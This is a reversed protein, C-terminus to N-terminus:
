SAQEALHSQSNGAQVLAVLDALLNNGLREWSYTTTGMRAAAEAMKYASSHEQRAFDIMAQALSNIDNAPVIIGNEEHIVQEPLAGVDTAIAPMGNGLAVAAVGSQTASLYPMVMVGNAAIIEGLETDDIWRNILKIGSDSIKNVLNKDIPGRGIITLSIDPDTQHAIRFAEVLVDIGKYKEIRGFFLFKNRNRAIKDLEITLSSQIIGHLSKITPTNPFKVRLQQCSYESLGILADADIPYFFQYAKLFLWWRDPHIEVDHITHVLLPKCRMSREISGVWPGSGTDLLIDPRDAQIIDAIHSQQRREIMSWLLSSFGSYTEFIKVQCPLKQWQELMVNNASLYCTVRVVKSLVRVLEYTYHCIGGQKGIYLIGLHIQSNDVM